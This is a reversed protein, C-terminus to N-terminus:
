SMYGAVAQRQPQTLLSTRADFYQDSGYCYVNLERPSVVHLGHYMPGFAEGYGTLGALLLAPLYRQYAGPNPSRFFEGPFFRMPISRVGTGGGLLM